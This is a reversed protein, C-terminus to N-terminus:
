PQMGGPPPQDERNDARSGNDALQRVPHLKGGELRYVDDARAAMREDHTAVVATQGRERVLRVLLDQLGESNERDLNGSPEDALLLAPGNVLARAVAVRQQEGGSLESPRHGRRDELGVAALLELGEKELEYRPRGAMLGPLMVNELADFEPMLHHFQYVFGISRNRFRALERAPLRFVDRGEFLVTGSTLRDLTGLIHLLTSKGAGSAGMIATLRGRVPRFDLGVLVRLEGNPAPFSKHLDRVDLILPEAFM